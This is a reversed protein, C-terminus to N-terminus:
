RRVFFFTREQETFRKDEVLRGLYNKRYIKDIQFYIPTNRPAQRVDSPIRIKSLTTTFDKNEFNLTKLVTPPGIRDKMLIKMSGIVYRADKPLMEQFEREPLLRMLIVQGPAVEMGPRYVSNGNLKVEFTPKPPEVVRYDVTGIDVLQGNTRSQVKVKTSKATPVILFKRKENRSQTVNARTATINPDYYDGLAPVDINIANGCNRYLLQIAASTVQIEPKRVTFTENVLLRKKRGDTMPVEVVATYNQTAESKGDPILGGNAMVQLMATNGGNAVQVRGSGSSFNPLITSSVLGISLQTQFPLGATVIRSVPSSIAIVSDAVIENDTSFREKYLDLLEQQRQLVDIKLAELTAMNGIVPGDFTFREWSKNQSSGDMGNAPEQIMVADMKEAGPGTEENYFTAILSGFEDMSNRLSFAEGNGRGSNAVEDDGMWYQFNEEMEDMRKYRKNEEDYVAIGEMASIHRDILSLMDRSAAQVETLTDLLGANDRKGEKEIENEILLRTHNIAQLGDEQANLASSQLRIRLNDIAPLIEVSVNLALLALLVL